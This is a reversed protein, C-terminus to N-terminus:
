QHVGFFFFIERARPPNDFSLFFLPGSSLVAGLAAVMNMSDTRHTRTNTPLPPPSQLAATRGTDRKKEMVKGWQGHKKLYPVWLM